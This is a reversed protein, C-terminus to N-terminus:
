SLPRTNIVRGFGAEEAQGKDNVGIQFLSEPYVNLLPLHM